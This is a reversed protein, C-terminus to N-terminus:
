CKMRELDNVALPLIWGDLSGPGRTGLLIIGLLGGDAQDVRWGATRGGIWGMWDSKRELKEGFLVLILPSISIYRVSMALTSSSHSKVDELSSIEPQDAIAVRFHIDDVRVRVHVSPSPEFGLGLM